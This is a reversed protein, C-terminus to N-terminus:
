HGSPLAQHGGQPGSSDPGEGLFVAAHAVDTSAATHNVSCNRSGHRLHVGCQHVRVADRGQCRQEDRDCEADDRGQLKEIRVEAAAHWPEAPAAQSVGVRLPDHEAPQPVREECKEVMGHRHQATPGDRANAQSSPQERKPVERHHRRSPHQHQGTDALGKFPRLERQRDVGNHHRCEHQGRDLKQRREESAPEVIEVHRAPVDDSPEDERQQGIRHAVDDRLKHRSRAASREAAQPNM